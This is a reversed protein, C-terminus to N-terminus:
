AWGRRFSTYNKEPNTNENFHIRKWLTVKYDIYM